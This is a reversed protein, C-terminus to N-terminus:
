GISGRVVRACLQIRDNGHKPCGLINQYGTTAQLSRVGKGIRHIGEALSPPKRLDRGECPLSISLPKKHNYSDKFQGLDPNRDFAAHEIM